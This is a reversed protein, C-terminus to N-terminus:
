NNTSLNLYAKKMDDILQNKKDMFQDLDAFLKKIENSVIKTNYNKEQM